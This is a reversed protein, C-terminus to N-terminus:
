NANVWSLGSVSRVSKKLQRPVGPSAQPDEEPGGPALVAFASNAVLALLALSVGPGLDFLPRYLFDLGWGSFRFFM